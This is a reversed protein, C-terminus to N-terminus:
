SLFSEVPTTAMTPVRPMRMGGLTVSITKPMMVSCDIPFSKRAPRTGPRIMARNKMPMMSPQHLILGASPGLPSLDVQFSRTADSGSTSQIRTM